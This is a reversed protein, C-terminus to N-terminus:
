QYNNNTANLIAGIIEPFVALGLNQLAFALGYATGVYKIPLLLSV